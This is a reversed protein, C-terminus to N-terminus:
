LKHDYLHKQVLDEIENLLPEVNNKMGLYAQKLFDTTGERGDLSM